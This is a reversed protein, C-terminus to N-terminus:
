QDWDCGPFYESLACGGYWDNGCPTDWCVVHDGAPCSRAFSEPACVTVTSCDTNAKFCHGISEGLSHDCWVPYELPCCESAGESCGAGGNSAGSEGGAGAGSDVSGSVGGEGGLLLGGGHGASGGRGGPYAAKGGAGGAGGVGKGPM